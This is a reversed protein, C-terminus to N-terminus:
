TTVGKRNIGSWIATIELVHAATAQFCDGGAQLFADTSKVLHLTQMLSKIHFPMNTLYPEPQLSELNLNLHAYFLSFWSFVFIFYLFHIYIILFFNIEFYYAFDAFTNALARKSTQLM